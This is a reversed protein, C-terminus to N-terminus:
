GATRPTESASDVGVIGLLIKGRYLSTGKPLLRDFGLRRGGLLPISRLRTGDALEAEVESAGELIEWWVNFGDAASEHQPLNRFNTWM